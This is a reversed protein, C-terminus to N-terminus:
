RGRASGRRGCGMTLDIMSAPHEPRGEVPEPRGESGGSGVRSVKVWEVAAEIRMRTAMKSLPLPRPSRPGARLSRSWRTTLCRPCSMPVVARRGM